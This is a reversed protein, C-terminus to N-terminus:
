SEHAAFLCHAFGSIRCFPFSERRFSSWTRRAWITDAETTCQNTVFVHKTFLSYSRLLHEKNHKPIRGNKEIVNKAVFLASRFSLCNPGSSDILKRRLDKWNQWIDPNQRIEPDSYFPFYERWIKDSRWKKDSSSSSCFCRSLRKWKTGLWVVHQDKETLHNQLNQSKGIM